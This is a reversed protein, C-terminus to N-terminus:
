ADDEKPAVLIDYDDRSMSCDVLEVFQAKTLGCQAAMAAVLTDGLEKYKGGRSVQTSFGLKKGHKNRYLLHTHKTGESREFGKKPLSTLIDRRQLQM